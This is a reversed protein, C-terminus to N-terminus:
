AAEHGPVESGAESVVISADCQIPVNLARTVLCYKEAKELLRRAKQRDDANRLKVIPRVLIRTFGMGGNEVNELTAIASSRYSVVDLRSKEAIALFTTMLCSELSAVLLHEPTWFGPEGQFEPPASTTVPPLEAVELLGRRRGKWYLHTEYFYPGQYMDKEQVQGNEWSSYVTFTAHKKGVPASAVALATPPSFTPWSAEARSARHVLRCL